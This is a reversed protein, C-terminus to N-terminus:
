RVARRNVRKRKNAMREVMWGAWFFVVALSIFVAFLTLGTGLNECDCAAFGLVIAFVAALNFVFRGIM